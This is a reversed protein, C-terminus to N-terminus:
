VFCNLSGRARPRWRGLPRLAAMLGHWSSRGAVRQPDRMARAEPRRQSRLHAAGGAAGVEGDGDSGARGGVDVRSEWLVTSVTSVSDTHVSASSAAKVVAATEVRESIAALMPPAWRGVTAM